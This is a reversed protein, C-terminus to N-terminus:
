RPERRGALVGTDAFGIRNLLSSYNDTVCATERREREKEREGCVSVSVSQTTFLTKASATKIGGGEQHKKKKM